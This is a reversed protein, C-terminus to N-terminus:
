ADVLARNDHVLGDDSQGVPMNPIVPTWGSAAAVPKAARKPRVLLHSVLVVIGAAAYSILMIKPSVLLTVALALRLYLPNFGFDEGLAACVGFINDKHPADTPQM